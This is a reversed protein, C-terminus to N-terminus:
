DKKGKGPIIRMSRPHVHPVEFPGVDNEDRWRRHSRIIAALLVTAIIDVIVAVTIRYEQAYEVPNLILLGTAGFILVLAGERATFAVDTFNKSRATLMIIFILMFVFAGYLLSYAFFETRHLISHNFLAIDIM